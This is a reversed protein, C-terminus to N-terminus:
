TIVEHRKTETSKLWVPVAEQQMTLQVVAAQQFSIQELGVHSSPAKAFSSMPREADYRQM